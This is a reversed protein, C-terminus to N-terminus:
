PLQHFRDISTIFEALPKSTEIKEHYHNPIEWIGRDKATAFLPKTTTPSITFRDEQRM